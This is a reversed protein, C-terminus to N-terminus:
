KKAGEMLYKNPTYKNSTMGNDWLVESVEPGPRVVWGLNEPDYSAFVRRRGRAEHVISSAVAKGTVKSVTAVKGKDRQWIKVSSSTTSAALGIGEGAALAAVPGSAEFVEWLKQLKSGPRYKTSM